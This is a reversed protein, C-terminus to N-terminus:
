ATLALRLALLAIVLNGVLGTVLTAREPLRHHLVAGTAALVCQWSFSAGAAGLVFALKASGSGLGRGQLGVILAAFYTITVPNSLTLGLFALYTRGTSRSAVDARESVPRRLLRWTRVAAIALLVAAGIWGFLRAHGKLVPTLALGVVAAITAYAFDASAAGAAAPLASRFGRRVAAEFILITIPGVPIAIGYGAALGELLARMAPSPM